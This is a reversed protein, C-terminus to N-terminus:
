FPVRGDLPNEGIGCLEQQFLWVPWHLPAFWDYQGWHDQAWDIIAQEREPYGIHWSNAVDRYLWNPVPQTVFLERRLRGLFRTLPSDVVVDAKGVRYPAYGITNWVQLRVGQGVVVDKRLYEALYDIAGATKWVEKVGMRGIGLPRGIKLMHDIPLRKNVIAHWHIRGSKHREIVRVGSFLVADTKYYNKVKQMLSGFM